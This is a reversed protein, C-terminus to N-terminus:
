RIKMSGYFKEGKLACHTYQADEGSAHLAWGERTRKLWEPDSVQVMNKKKAVAILCLKGVTSPEHRHNM